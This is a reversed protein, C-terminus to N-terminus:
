AKLGSSDAKRQVGLPTKNTMRLAALSRLECVASVM